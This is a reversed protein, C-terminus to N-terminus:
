QRFLEPSPIAGTVPPLALSCRELAGRCPLRYATVPLPYRTWLRCAEAQAGSCDVNMGLADAAAWGQLPALLTPLAKPDRLFLRIRGEQPLRRQEAGRNYIDDVLALAIVRGDMASFVLTQTQANHPEFGWIINLGGPLFTRPLPHIALGRLARQELSEGGSVRLKGDAGLFARLDQPGFPRGTYQKEISAIQRLRDGMVQLVCPGHDGCALLKKEYAQQDRLLAKCYPTGEGAQRLDEWFSVKLTTDLIRLNDTWEKPKDNDIAKCVPQWPSNPDRRCSGRPAASHADYITKALEPCDARAFADDAWAPVALTAAWLAPLVAWSRVWRHLFRGSFFSM